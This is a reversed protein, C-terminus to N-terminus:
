IDYLSFDESTTPDLLQLLCTLPVPFLLVLSEYVTEDALNWTRVATDSFIRIKEPTIIQPQALLEWM